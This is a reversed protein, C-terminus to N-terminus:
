LGHAMEEVLSLGQMVACVFRVFYVETTPISMLVSYYYCDRSIEMLVLAVVTVQCIYCLVANLLITSRKAQKIAFARTQRM